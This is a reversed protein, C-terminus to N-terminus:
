KFSIVITWDVRFLVFPRGPISYHDSVAVAVDVRKKNELLAITSLSFVTPPRNSTTTERIVYRCSVCFAIARSFEVAFLLDGPGARVRERKKEETEGRKRGFVIM